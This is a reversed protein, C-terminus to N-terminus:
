NIRAGSAGDFLHIAGPEAALRLSDGLPADVPLVATIPQGGTHGHVLRTAGLEEVAHLALTIPGGDDLHLDEPRIGVTAGPPAYMLLGIHGRESNLQLLAPPPAQASAAAVLLCFVFLVAAPAGRRM